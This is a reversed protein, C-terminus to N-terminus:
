RILLANKSIIVNGNRDEGLVLLVGSPLDSINLLVSAESCVPINEVIKGDITVIKIREIGKTCIRCIDNFPNPSIRLDINHERWVTCLIGTTDSIKKPVSRLSKREFVDEIIVFFWLSDLPEDPIYSFSTDDIENSRHLCFPSTGM